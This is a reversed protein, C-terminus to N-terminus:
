TQQQCIEMLAFEGYSVNMDGGHPAFEGYSVNTEGGHPAFEGYSM